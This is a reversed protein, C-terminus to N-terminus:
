RTMPCIRGLLPEDRVRTRVEEGVGLPHRLGAIQVLGEPGQDLEGVERGVVDAHPEADGVLHDGAM